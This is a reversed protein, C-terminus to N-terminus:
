NGKVIDEVPYVGIVLYVKDERQWHGFTANTGGTAPLDKQKVRVVSGDALHVYFQQEPLEVMTAAPINQTETAPAEHVQGKPVAHVSGDPLRVFDYLSSPDPKASDIAGDDPNIPDTPTDAPTDAPAKPEDNAPPVLFPSEISM